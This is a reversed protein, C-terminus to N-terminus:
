TLKDWYGMPCDETKLKSKAKVFCLCKKCQLTKKYLYPCVACTLKRKAVVDEDDIYNDENLLDLVGM